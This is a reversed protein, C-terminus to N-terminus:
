SVSSGGDRNAVHLTRYIHYEEKTKSSRLHCHELRHPIVLHQIKFWGSVKPIIELTSYCDGPFSGAQRFWYSLVCQVGQVVYAPARSRAPYVRGPQYFGATLHIKHLTILRLPHYIIVIQCTSWWFDNWVYIQCHFLHIMKSIACGALSNNRFGANKFPKLICSM